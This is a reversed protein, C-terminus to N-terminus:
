RSRIGLPDSPADTMPASPVSGGPATFYDGGRLSKIRQSATQKRREAMQIMRRLARDRIEPPKTVDGIISIFERMENETTAGKLIQSMSQLAEMRMIDSYERTAKATEPSGPVMWDPLNSGMVGGMGAGYGSFTKDNLELARNLTEITNDIVPLEDEAEFIAKKDVTTLTADRGTTKQYEAFGPDDQTLQYEKYSNPMGQLGGRGSKAQYVKFAEDFMGAGALGIVDPDGTSEAWKITQNIQQRQQARETGQAALTNDFRAQDLAFSKDFRADQRDWGERQLDAQRKDGRYDAMARAMGRAGAAMDGDLLGAGLALFAEPNNQRMDGVKTTFEDWSGSLLGQGPAQAQMQAQQGGGFLGDLLGM